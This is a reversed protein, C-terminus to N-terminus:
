EGGTSPKPASTAIMREGAARQDLGITRAAMWEPVHWNGPLSRAIAGPLTAMLMIGALAGGAGTWVLRRVQHDAAQGREIIGDIRGISRTLADRAERLLTRDKVHGGGKM